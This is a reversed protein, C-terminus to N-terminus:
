LKAKSKGFGFIGGRGVGTMREQMKKSAYFFLGFILIWPLLSVIITWLLPQKQLEGRVEVNHTELMPLLKPDKIAPKITRIYDPKENDTGSSGANDKEFVSANKALKGNIQNGKITVKSIKGRSVLKKFPSYSLERISTGPCFGWLLVHFGVM